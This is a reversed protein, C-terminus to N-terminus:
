TQIHEPIFTFYNCVQVAVEVVVIVSLVAEIAKEQSRNYNVFHSLKRYGKKKKQYGKSDLTM